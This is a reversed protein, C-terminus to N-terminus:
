PACSARSVPMKCRDKLDLTTWQQSASEHCVHVFWKGEEFQCAFDEFENVSGHLEGAFRGVALLYESTGTNRLAPVVNTECGECDMKLFTIAQQGFMEVVAGLSRSTVSACQPVGTQQTQSGAQEQCNCLRAEMTFPPTYCLGIVDQDLTSIGNNLALVGAQQPSSRFQEETLQPIGNLEMNWRLLFYTSPVPEIIITRMKDSYKKFAAISVVGYNGGIDLMTMMGSTTPQMQGLSDL